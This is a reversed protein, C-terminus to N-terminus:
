DKAYTGTVTGVALVHGAAADPLDRARQVSAPLPADLAYLHFRYRHPGHGPIPRPGQYGTRGMMVALFRVSADALGGRAIGTLTAPLLAVTHVVPTRVPVDIDEMVLVLEATGAPLDAWTLAPSQNAGYATTETPMPAGDAFDPSSLTLAGSTQLGPAHVLSRGEDARRGSLAHGLLALPSAM